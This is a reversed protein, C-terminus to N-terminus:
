SAKKIKDRRRKKQCQLRKDLFIQWYEEISEREEKSVQGAADDVFAEFDDMRLKKDAVMYLAILMRLAITPERNLRTAYYDVIAYDLLSFGFSINGVAWETRRKKGIFPPTKTQAQYSDESERIQSLTEVDSLVTLLKDGPFKKLRPSDLVFKSLKKFDMNKHDAVAFELIIGSIVEGWAIRYQQARYMVFLGEMWSLNPILRVNENM